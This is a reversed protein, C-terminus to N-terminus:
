YESSVALQASHRLVNTNKRESQRFLNQARGSQRSLDQSNRQARQPSFILWLPCLPRVFNLLNLRKARSPMSFVNVINWKKIIGNRNNIILQKLIKASSNKLYFSILLM